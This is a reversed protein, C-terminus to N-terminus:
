EKDLKGVLSLTFSAGMYKFHPQIQLGCRYWGPQGDVEEVQLRGSRLPRRARVAPAPDDMDSVYQNLWANLERELDAREKWTGLQERQLVKVYHALRTMIFMYPLQSGLRYNLEAQKGEPTSGFFKVRQVSNASFFAANESSKRFVLGIFGEESLEFERRETLLIETPLKTQLQGLAEYQHLTLGDVAGGSQPGIINPSWRFKAFSDAVRTAFATSAYGWLYREHHGSVDETFDFDKVPVTSESYPLRLLFRPLCLGVYRSDESDRLSHWRAYQPGKFLSELDKLYPLGLVSKEGFFEPSANSIFPAHAMAAISACKALLDMDHPGPGFDYGACIMAYPRGGFVGYENSYILRYLGSKTLEPSDEFDEHVDEKSANLLDVRINERFDVHDVLFKLSRWASELQQFDAHHLIENVQLSLRRDLEAVMTDILPRDIRDQAHEPVLLATMFAHVGRRTAEYGEDRPKLRAEALLSDLLSSRETVSPTLENKLLNMQTV